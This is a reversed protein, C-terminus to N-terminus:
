ILRKYLIIAYSIDISHICPRFVRKISNSEMSYFGDSEKWHIYIFMPFYMELMNTTYIFTSTLSAHVSYGSNCKLMTGIRRSGLGAYFTIFSFFVTSASTGVMTWAGHNKEAVPGKAGGSTREIKGFAFDDSVRSVSYM